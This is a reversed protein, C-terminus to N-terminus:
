GNRVDAPLRYDVCLQCKCHERTKGCWGLSSCCPGNGQPNCEVVEGDPLSPVRDGCKFDPRYRRYYKTAPNYGIMRLQDKRAREEAEEDFEEEPETPVDAEVADDIVTAPQSKGGQPAANAGKTAVTQKRLTTTKASEVGAAAAATEAAQKLAQERRRDLLLLVQEATEIRHTMNRLVAAYLDIVQPDMGDPFGDCAPKGWTMFTISLLALFFLGSISLGKWTCGLAHLIPSHGVAM